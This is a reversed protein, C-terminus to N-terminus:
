PPRLETPLAGTQSVPQRPNLGRREGMFRWPPEEETANESQPPPIKRKRCHDGENQMGVKRVYEMMAVPWM